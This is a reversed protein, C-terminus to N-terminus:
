APESAAALAREALRKLGALDLKGTGTRPLAEVQVFHSARPVFLRPLDSQALEALISQVPVTFATHVVCLQEGKRADPVSTIALEPLAQGPTEESLRAVIEALLAEVKGHPVMEGGIKSFRALRDTLVLFGEDDLRGIDGTRYWGDRVVEATLDPRGLYGKMLGPSKVEVMGESGPQLLEGHELAVIRVAVGPIPRGVNGPDRPNSGRNEGARADPLEITAVPALETCGYGVLLPQGFREQWASALDPRVKEAGILCMRARALAGSEFRRLWAQYLTPTGALITPSERACLEGIAKADLPSAHYAGRAGALVVSWLTVTFGFSHFFPLIGLVTDGPGLAIVELLADVNSLINAHSLEVGKPEGTSGSSFLITATSRPSRPLGLVRALVFAPWYTALGARLRRWGRCEALLDEIHLTREEPLPSSRDLSALVRRSTLLVQAGARELSSALVANSLTANLNVSVRGALTVALNAIVGAAGPPLLLGVAQTDGLRSRLSARLALAAALLQRYTLPRGDLEVVAPERAHTRAVRLFRHALTDGHQERGRRLDALAEAVAIRVRWAPADSALRAGFAVDVPYPIRQPLKWFARGREFSFVSGWMRDLAVPVIQVGADRAIKELGRRFGQLVGTRTIAGEAFICVLEGERAATAAASLARAKESPSDEAALSITRMCRAFWGVLPMAFFSRHMLFRVPRPSAASILLADVFSVHNAVLLAGGERPLNERGAVRMRYIARLLGLLVLRLLFMSGADTPPAGQADHNQRDRRM